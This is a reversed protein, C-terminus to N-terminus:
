LEQVDVTFDDRADLQVLYPTLRKMDDESTIEWAAAKGAKAVHIVTGNPDTIPEDHMSNNQVVVCALYTKHM